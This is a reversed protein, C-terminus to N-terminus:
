MNVYEQVTHKYWAQSRETKGNLTAMSSCAKLGNRGINPHSMNSKQFEQEM